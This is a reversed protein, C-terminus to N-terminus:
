KKTLNILIIIPWLLSLIVALKNVDKQNKIDSLLGLNALININNYIITWFIGAIM